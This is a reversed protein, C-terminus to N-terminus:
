IAIVTEPKDGESPGGSLMNMSKSSKQSSLLSCGRQSDLATSRLYFAQIVALLSSFVAFCLIVISFSPIRGPIEGRCVNGQTECFRADFFLNCGAGCSPCSENLCCCFGTKGKLGTFGNDSVKISIRDIRKLEEPVYYRLVGGLFWTLPQQISLVQMSKGATEPPLVDPGPPWSPTTLKSFFWVDGYLVTFNVIINGPLSSNSCLAAKNSQVDAISSPIMGSVRYKIECSDIDEMSLCASGDGTCPPSRLDSADVILIDYYQKQLIPISPSHLTVIPINDVAYVKVIVPIAFSFKDIGSTTKGVKLQITEPFGFESNYYLDPSYILTKLAGNLDCMSGRIVISSGVQVSSAFNTSLTGHQVSISLVFIQLGFDYDQTDPNRIQFSFDSNFNIAANELTSM